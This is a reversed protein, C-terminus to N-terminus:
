QSIPASSIAIPSTADTREDFTVTANMRPATKEAIGTNARSNPM